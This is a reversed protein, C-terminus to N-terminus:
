VAITANADPVGWTYGATLGGVALGLGLGLTLALDWVGGLDLGLAM